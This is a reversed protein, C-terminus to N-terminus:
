VTDFVRIVDGRELNLPDAIREANLDLLDGADQRLRAAVAFLSTRDVDVVFSRIRPLASFKEDAARAQTDGLRLLQRWFASGRPDGLNGSVDDALQQQATFVRAIARRSATARTQLDAVSRGPALLLGELESSLEQLTILDSDLAGERYASFVTQDAQKVVSARVSPLAFTEAQLAEENDEIFTLQVSGEDQAQIDETRDGTSGHARVTGVTPLTLYGTEGTLVAAILARLMFPYLPQPNAELGPESITNNFLATFTWSRPQNGTDDIKAGHRLPRQQQVVRNGFSEKLPGVIPFRIAPQSGVQWSAIPYQNFIGPM